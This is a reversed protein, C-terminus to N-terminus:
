CAGQKKKASISLIGGKAARAGGGHQAGGALRAGSM